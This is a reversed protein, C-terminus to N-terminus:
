GNKYYSIVDNIIDDLSHESKYGIMKKIKSLDPVRWMMKLRFGAM